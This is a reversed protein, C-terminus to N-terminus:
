PTKKMRETEVWVRASNITGSPTGHCIAASLECSKAEGENLVRHTAWYRCAEMIENEDLDVQVIAM